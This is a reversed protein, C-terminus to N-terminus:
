CRISIGPEKAALPFDELAAQQVATATEAM